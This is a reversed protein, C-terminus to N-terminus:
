RVQQYHGVKSVPALGTAIRSWNEGEDESFFVEGDTTGAFLGFSNSWAAMCMAEINGRLSKPFRELIEWSRGADRSRAVTPDAMHTEKWHQPAKAAGAMFMVKDDFPSTLLADPYGIRWSRLTLHEWTQGGDPSTYLGQGGTFYIQDPNSPRIVLRHVDKFVQDVEPKYFGSIDRWSRGADMSKLLGGQEISVYLVRSDRPDSNIHKVHGLHPPAPFKWTEAGPVSRLAPLEEWTEGYDLSQFLDAPETGAYLVIDGNRELSALTYVHQITLGRTKLEWNQGDDMSVYLGNGHVGAFLGGRKPELLFSSIHVGKLLHGSRKWAEGPNQRELVSIGDTTGVLLKKPPAEVTYLDCGNPALCVSM